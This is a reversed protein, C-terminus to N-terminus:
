QQTAVLGVEFRSLANNCHVTATSFAEQAVCFPAELNVAQTGRWHELSLGRLAVARGGGAAETAM